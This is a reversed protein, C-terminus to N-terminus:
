LLHILQLLTLSMESSLVRTFGLRKAEKIRRPQRSAPVIDGLLSLEGICVANKPLP